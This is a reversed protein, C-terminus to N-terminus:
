VSAGSGRDTTGTRCSIVRRSVVDDILLLTVTVVGVVIAFSVGAFRWVTFFAVLAIVAFRALRWAAAPSSWFRAGMTPTHRLACAFKMM